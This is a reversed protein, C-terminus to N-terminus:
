NNPTLSEVMSRHMTEGWRDMNDRMEEWNGTSVSFSPRHLQSFVWRTLVVVSEDQGTNQLGNFTGGIAAVKRTYSTLELIANIDRRVRKQPRYPHREDEDVFDAVILGRGRMHGPENNPEFFQSFLVTNSEMLLGNITTSVLRNQTIGKDGSDDDERITIHGLKESISIEINCFYQVLMDFVQRVSGVGHFQITTFRTSCFDGNSLEYRHDECMPKCPDVNPRRQRLFHDADDLKMPKLYLLTDRRSIEESGLHIFRQLPGGAEITYLAYESMIGQINAFELQQTQVADRLVKSAIVRDKDNQSPTGFSALAQKKLEEMRAHLAELEKELREKEEKRLTHTAKPYKRKTTRRETGHSESEAIGSDNESESPKARKRRRIIAGNQTTPSTPTPNKLQTKLALLTHASGDELNSASPSASTSSGVRAVRPGLLLSKYYSNDRIEERCADFVM